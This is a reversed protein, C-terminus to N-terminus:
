QGWEEIPPPHGPGYALTEAADLAAELPTAWGERALWACDAIDAVVDTAIEGWPSTAVEHLQDRAMPSDAEAKAGGVVALYTARILWVRRTRIGREETSRALRRMALAARELCESADWLSRREARTAHWWAWAECRELAEVMLGVLRQEPTRPARAPLTTPPEPGVCGAAIWDPDAGGGFARQLVTSREMAKLCDSIWDAEPNLNVM